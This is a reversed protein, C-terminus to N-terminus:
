NQGQPTPQGNSIRAWAADNITVGINEQLATVYEAYLDNTLGTKLVERIAKAEDSTADFGTGLVPTSAMVRASRGDNSLAFAKGDEKVEFVAAVDAPTLGGTPQNRRVGTATQLTANETQALEALPTGKNLSAVLAAAKERTAAESQRAKWVTAVKEKISNFEPVSAQVIERTEIWTFGDEGDTLPSIELGIDTDFATALTAPHGPVDVTQGSKDTKNLAIPGVNVMEVGIENAAEAMSAGNARADEFKDHLDLLKGRAKSLRVKTEIEARIEQLPALTNAEVITAKVLVTSFRSKVPESVAGDALAFAAEAIAPDPIAAKDVTGLSMDADSLGREKAIDEFSTGAKIKEAAARAEDESPFPIQLITRKQDATSQAKDADYQRQIEDESVEVTPAIVQPTLAVVSFARREPEEFAKPNEDYLSKLDADSPQKADDPLTFEFYSVDRQETRHKWILEVLTDPIVASATLPDSIVQRTMARGEIAFFEQESLGNSRLLNRFADASFTGNGSRFQPNDAVQQAIVREPIAIGLSDAQSDLAADRMLDGLIQRDLGLERARDPTITEGLRRSYVSLQRNFTQSYEYTGIERSGVTALVDSVRGRLMDEIGWVAFSAALLGIFVKAIIGGSKSRLATLM